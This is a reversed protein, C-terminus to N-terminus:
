AALPLSRYWKLHREVSSRSIGFERALDKKKYVGSSYLIGLRLKEEDSLMIGKYVGYDRAHEWNEKKTVWELNELRNDHKRNNIHNVQPKNEPNPLFALAVLRHVYYDVREGEKWIPVRQYVTSTRLKLFYGKRKETTHRYIRGDTTASYIGEYGPIPRMEVSEQQKTNSM